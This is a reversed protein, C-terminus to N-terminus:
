SMRISMCHAYHLLATINRKRIFIM